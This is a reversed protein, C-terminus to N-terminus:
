LLDTHIGVRKLTPMIKREILRTLVRKRPPSGLDRMSSVIADDIQTDVYETSMRPNKGLDYRARGHAVRPDVYM